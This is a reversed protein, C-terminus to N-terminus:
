MDCPWSACDDRLWFGETFSGSEQPGFIWPSATRGAMHAMRWLSYAM